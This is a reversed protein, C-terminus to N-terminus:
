KAQISLATAVGLDTAWRNANWPSDPEQLLREYIAQFRPGNNDTQQLSWFERGVLFDSQLEQWSDFTLQLRRAAPMIHDWAETDSLYGALNGWRCLAIYRVLDWALIGKQGLRRHYRRTIDLQNQAQPNSNAAIITSRFEADSLDDVRRGLEEFESRHGEFQLWNLMELLEDHNNVGWWRSLEQKGSEQGDPTAPTGSLLDHRHGNIEFLIATTALAWARPSNRPVATSSLMVPDVNASTTRTPATDATHTCGSALLPALILGAALSLHKPM